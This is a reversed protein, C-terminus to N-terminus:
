EKSQFRVRSRHFNQSDRVLTLAILGRAQRASITHIM